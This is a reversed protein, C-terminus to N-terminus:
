GGFGPRKTGSAASSFVGGGSKRPKRGAHSMMKGDIKGMDKIKGGRKFGESKNKSNAAVKSGGGSYFSGSLSSMSPKVGKQTKGKM